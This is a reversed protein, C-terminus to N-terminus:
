WTLVTVTGFALAAAGTGVSAWYLSNTRTRLLPLQATDTEAHFRAATALSVSYTTVATAAFAIATGGFLRHRRRASALEEPLPGWAPTEEGPALYRTEILREGADYVQVINSIGRPRAAGRVGDVVVHGGPPGVTPDQRGEDADDSWDYLQLLPHGPPAVSEPVQYGPVLRRAAHFEALVLQEDGSTFAALAMLRHFDAAVALPLREGLCPIVALAADRAQTLGQLDIAAFAAEGARAAAQFEAVTTGGDPCPGPPAAWAASATLFFLPLFM